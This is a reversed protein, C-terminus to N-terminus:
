QSNIKNCHLERYNRPTYGTYEKFITSFYSKSTYGVSESVEYIRCTPDNLLEKAKEMRTQFLYDGLTMSTEQKFLVNAHGASIYLPDTVEIINQIKAYYQNIQDKMQSVLISRRSNCNLSVYDFCITIINTMWTKIDYITEFASLKKWISAKETWIDKFQINRKNLYKELSFIIIFCTHRINEESRKMNGYYKNLFDSVGEKSDNEFLLQVDQEIQIYDVDMDMPVFATSDSLIIRNGHSYFKSQICSLANNFQKTLDSFETVIESIGITISFGTSELIEEKLKVFYELVSQHCEDLSQWNDSLVCCVNEYDMIYSYSIFHSDFIKHFSNKLSYSFLYKQETNASHFNINDFNLIAVIISSKFEMNIYQMRKLYHDRDATLHMIERLLDNRLAPLSNQLQEKLLQENIEHNKERKLKESIANLLKPLEDMDVPKLLYDSVQLNLASKIFDFEDHCSMIVFKPYLNQAMIETIMTLGDMVPMSIDTILIDPKIKLAKKLGDEGNIATIPIEMNYDSWKIYNKIGERDFLNDEVLLVKYM